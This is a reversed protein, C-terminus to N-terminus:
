TIYRTSYVVYVVYELFTSVIYKTGWGLDRDKVSIVKKVRFVWDNSALPMIKFKKGTFMASNAWYLGKWNKEWIVINHQGIQPWYFRITYWDVVGLFTHHGLM